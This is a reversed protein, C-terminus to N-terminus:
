STNEKCETIHHECRVPIDFPPLESTLSWLDDDEDLSRIRWTLFDQIISIFTFMFSLITVSPWSLAIFMNGICLQIDDKLILNNLEFTSVEEGSIWSFYLIEYWNTSIIGSITWPELGTNVVELDHDLTQAGSRYLCHCFLNTCRDLKVKDDQPRPNM